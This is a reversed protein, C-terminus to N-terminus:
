EASELEAGEMEEMDPVTGTLVCIQPKPVPVSLVVKILRSACSDGIDDSYREEADCQEAGVAYDGNEDVKVWVEIQLNEM